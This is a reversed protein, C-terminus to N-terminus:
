NMANSFLQGVNAGVTPSSVEVTTVITEYLSWAIAGETM